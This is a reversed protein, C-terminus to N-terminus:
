VLPFHRSTLTPGLISRVLLLVTESSLSGTGWSSDPNPSSVIASSCRTSNFFLLKVVADICNCAAEVLDFAHLFYCGADRQVVAELEAALDRKSPMRLVLCSSERAYPPRWKLHSIPYIEDARTSTSGFPQVLEPSVVSGQAGSLFKASARTLLPASAGFGRREGTSIAVDVVVLRKSCAPEAEVVSLVVNGGGLRKRPAQTSIGFLYVVTRCGVTIKKVM